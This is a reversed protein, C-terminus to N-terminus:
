RSKGPKAPKSPKAAKSAKAPSSAGPKGGESPADAAPAEGGARGAGMPDLIEMAKGPLSKAIRANEAMIAEFGSSPAAVGSTASAGSPATGGAVSSGYPRGAAEGDIMAERMASAANAARESDMQAKHAAVMDAEARKRGFPDDLAERPLSNRDFAGGASDMEVLRALLGAERSDLELGLGLGGLRVIEEMAKVLGTGRATASAGPTLNGTHSTYIIRDTMNILKM